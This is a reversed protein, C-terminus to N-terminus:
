EFSFFGANVSLLSCTKQFIVHAKSAHMRLVSYSYWCCVYVCLSERRFITSRMWSRQQLMSYLCFLVSCFLVSSFQVPGFRFCVFSVTHMITFRSYFHSHSGVEGKRWLLLVRIFIYSTFSILIVTTGTTEQVNWEHKTLQTIAHITHM